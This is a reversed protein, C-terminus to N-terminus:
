KDKRLRFANAFERIRRTKSHILNTVPILRRAYLDALRDIIAKQESNLEALWYTDDSCSALKHECLPGLLERANGESIYLRKAITPLDWREEPRLRLILLAELQGVSDIYRSIFERIDEPIQEDSM